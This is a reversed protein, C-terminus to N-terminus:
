GLINLSGQHRKKLQFEHFTCESIGLSVGSTYVRQVHGENYTAEQEAEEQGERVALCNGIIAEAHGLGFTVDRGEVHLRGCWRHDLGPEKPYTLFDLFSGNEPANPPDLDSVERLANCNRKPSRKSM